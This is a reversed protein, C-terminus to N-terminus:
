KYLKLEKPCLRAALIGPLDSTGKDRFVVYISHIEELCCFGIGIHIHQMQSFETVGMNNLCM